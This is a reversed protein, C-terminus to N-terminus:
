YKKKKSNLIIKLLNEYCDLFLLIHFLRESFQTWRIKLSMVYMGSGGWNGWLVLIIYVDKGQLHQLTQPFQLYQGPKMGVGPIM